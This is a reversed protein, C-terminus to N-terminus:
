DTVVYTYVKEAVSNQWSALIAVVMDAVV